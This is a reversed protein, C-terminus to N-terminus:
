LYVSLFFSFILCSLGGTVKTTSAANYSAISPSVSSSLTAVSGSGSSSAPISAVNSSSTETAVTTTTSPTAPVLTTTTQPQPQVMTPASTEPVLNGYLPPVAYPPDFLGFRGCANCPSAWSKVPGPAVLIPDCHSNPAMTAIASPAESQPCDTGLDNLTLQRTASMDPDMTSVQDLHLPFIVSTGSPGTRGASNYGYITNIVMYVSPSTSHTNHVNAWPSPFILIITILPRVLHLRPTHRCLHDSIHITQGNALLVLQRHRRVKSSLTLLM